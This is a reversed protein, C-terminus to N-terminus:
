FLYDEALESTTQSCNEAIVIFSIKNLPQVIYLSFARKTRSKCREANCRDIILSENDVLLSDNINREHTKTFGFNTCLFSFKNM